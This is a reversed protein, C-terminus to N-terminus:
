ATETDFFPDNEGIYDNITAYTLNEKIATYSDLLQAFLARTTSESATNLSLALGENREAVDASFTDTQDTQVFLM